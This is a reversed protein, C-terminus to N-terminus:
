CSQHHCECPCVGSGPCADALFVRDVIGAAQLASLLRHFGGISDRDKVVGDPRTVGLRAKVQPIACAFEAVHWALREDLFRVVADRDGARTGAILSTRGAEVREFSWLMAYYAAFYVDAQLPDSLDPSRGSNLAGYHLRAVYNRVFAAEGATLEHVLSRATELRTQRQESRHLRVAIAVAVLALAASSVSALASLEDAGM